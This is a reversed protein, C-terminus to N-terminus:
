GSVALISLRNRKHTPTLPWTLRHTIPAPNSYGTKAPALMSYFVPVQTPPPVEYVTHGRYTSHIPRTTVSRHLELDSAAMVGGEAQLAAVIAAAIRGKYYGADGRM